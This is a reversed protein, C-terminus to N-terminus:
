AGRRALLFDAVLDTLTEPQEAFFGAGPATVVRARPLREILRDASALPHIPDDRHALVLTEHRIEPFRAVPIPDRERLLGRIAPVITESRQSAFFHRLDNQPRERQMRRVSPLATVLRATRRAGLWAYAAALPLFTRRAVVLDRGFPPPARLVLRDVLQPREMALLLASGAGMSSGYVNAPALGHAEILAGLDCAHQAWRYETAAAPGQSRGHGRADYAVVRLGRAALADFRDGFGPALAVSGLLGHAVVVPPGTEGHTQVFLEVGNVRTSTM